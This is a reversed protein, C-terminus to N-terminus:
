FKLDETSVGLVEQLDESVDILLKIFSQTPAPKEYAPAKALGKSVMKFDMEVDTGNPNPDDVSVSFNYEATNAAVDTIWNLEAVGDGEDNDSVYRLRLPIRNLDTGELLLSLDLYTDDMDLPTFRLNRLVKNDLSIWAEIKVGDFNMDDVMKDIDDDSVQDKFSSDPFVKNWIGTQDIKDRAAKLYSKLNEENVEVLYKESSVGEYDETGLNEARQLVMNDSDATFLYDNSVDILARTVAIYDETTIQEQSAAEDVLEDLESQSIFGENVLEEYDLLWWINELQRGGTLQDFAGE